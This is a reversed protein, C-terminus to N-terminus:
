SSPNLANFLQHFFLGRGEIQFRVFDRLIEPLAEITMSDRSQDLSPFYSYTQDWHAQLKFSLAFGHNSIDTMVCDYIPGKVDKCISLIEFGSLDGILETKSRFEDLLGELSSSGATTQHHNTSSSTATKTAAKSSVNNTTSTSRLQNLQAILAKSNTTETELMKKLTKQENELENVHDRVEQEALAKVRKLDKEVTKRKQRQEEFGLRLQENTELLERREEELRRRENAEEGTYIRDMKELLEKITQRNELIEENQAKILRNSDSFQPETLEKFKILSREAELERRDRFEEIFKDKVELASRLQSLEDKFNRIQEELLAIRKNRRDADIGDSDNRIQNLSSLHNSTLSAAPQISSLLNSLQKSYEQNDNLIRLAESRDNNSNSNTTTKDRASIKSSLQNNKSGSRISPLAEEPHSPLSAESKVEETISDTENEVEAETLKKTRDSTSRSSKKPKAVINKRKTM